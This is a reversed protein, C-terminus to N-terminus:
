ASRRIVEKGVYPVLVPPIRITGDEQQYNEMIAILTRGIAFATADNMHVHTLDGEVSKVRTNLRRAQFGGMYDASHTERFTDQGPMWINIDMQRQDPKGMDGTCVLMVNHHLGLERVLHEQIAVLLDQERYGDEPRTFTEMELKDFQHQRLIGRTDKGAAGAERRFSTSYGVYRIPLMAEDITSGASFCGPLDPVAVGYDSGSEKHIAIPYNM